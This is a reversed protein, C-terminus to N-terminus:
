QNTYCIVYKNIIVLNEKNCIFFIGTAVRM